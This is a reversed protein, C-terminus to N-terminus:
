AKNLQISQEGKKIFGSSAQERWTAAQSPYSLLLVSNVM